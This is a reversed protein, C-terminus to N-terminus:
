VIPSGRSKWKLSSGAISTKSGRGTRTGECRGGPSSQSFPGSTQATSSQCAGINKKGRLQGRTISQRVGCVM